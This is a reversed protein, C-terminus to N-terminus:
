NLVIDFEKTWLLILRSHPVPQSAQRAFYMDPQYAKRYACFNELIMNQMKQM